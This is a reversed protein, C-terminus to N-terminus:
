LQSKFHAVCRAICRQLVTQMTRSVANCPFYCSCIHWGKIEDALPVLFANCCFTKVTGIQADEEGGVYAMWMNWRYIRGCLGAM